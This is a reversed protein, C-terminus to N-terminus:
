PIGWIRITGENAATAIKQGDPSFSVSYITSTHGILEKISTGRAANWLRVVGDESGTVLISNGASFDLSNVDGFNGDVQFM